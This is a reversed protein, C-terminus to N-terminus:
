AGMSARQLAPMIHDIFLQVSHQTERLTLDGFVFQSILYNYPTGDLQDRLMRLVTEPRGALLRGDAIAEDYGPRKGHAPTVGKLKFLYNFSINWRDYGRKALALAEEDSDALVIFRCLGIKPDSAAPQTEDWVERFRIGTPKALAIGDLSVM